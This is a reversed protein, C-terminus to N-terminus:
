NVLKSVKSALQYASVLAHVLPVYLKDNKVIDEALYEVHKATVFFLALWYEIAPERGAQKEACSRMSGIIKVKKAIEKVFELLRICELSGVRRRSKSLQRSIHLMREGAEQIINLHNMIENKIEKNEICEKINKIESPIVGTINAVRHVAAAVSDGMTESWRKQELEDYAQHLESMLNANTMAVPIQNVVAEILKVDDPTFADEKKTELAFAGIIEGDADKIPIAACTKIDPVREVYETSLQTDKVSLVYPVRKNIAQGTIGQGWKLEIQKAQGSIIEEEPWTYEVRLLKAKKDVSVWSM